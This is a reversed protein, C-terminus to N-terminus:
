KIGLISRKKANQYAKDIDQDSGSLVFGVSLCFLLPIFFCKM